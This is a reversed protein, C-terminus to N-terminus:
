IGNCDFLLIVLNYPNSFCLSFFSAFLRPNELVVRRGHDRADLQRQLAHKLDAKALLFEQKWRFVPDSTLYQLKQQEKRAWEAVRRQADDRQQQVVVAEAALREAERVDIPVQPNNTLPRGLAHTFM